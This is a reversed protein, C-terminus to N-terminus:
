LYHPLTYNKVGNKEEDVNSVEEMKDQQTLTAAAAVKVM